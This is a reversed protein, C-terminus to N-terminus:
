YIMHKDSFTLCLTPLFPSVAGIKSILFSIVQVEIKTKENKIIQHDVVM